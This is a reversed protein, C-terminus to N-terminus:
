KHREGIRACLPAIVAEAQQMLRSAARDAVGDWVSNGPRALWPQEADVSAKESISPDVHQRVAFQGEKAHHGVQLGALAASIEDGNGTVDADPVVTEAGIAILCVM